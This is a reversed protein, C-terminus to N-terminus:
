IAYLWWICDYIWMKNSIKIKTMLFQQKEPAQMELSIKIVLSEISNGCPKGTELWFSTWKEVQNANFIICFPAWWFYM